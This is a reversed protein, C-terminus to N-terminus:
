VRPTQIVKWNGDPDQEFKVSEGNSFEAVATQGKIDASEM